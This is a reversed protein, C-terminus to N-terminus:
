VRYCVDCMKVDGNYRQWIDKFWAQVSLGFLFFFFFHIKRWIKKQITWASYELTENQVIWFEISKSICQLVSISKETKWEFLCPPHLSKARLHMQLFQHSWRFVTYSLSQDQNTLDFDIRHQFDNNIEVHLLHSWSLNLNRVLSWFSTLDIQSESLFDSGHGWALGSIKM